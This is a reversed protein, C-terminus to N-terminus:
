SLYFTLSILAFIIILNYRSQDDPVKKYKDYGVIAIIGAIYSAILGQKVTPSLFIITLFIFQLFVQSLFAKKSIDYATKKNITKQSAYLSYADSLPDTILLSIIAGMVGIKHVKTTYLGTILSLMTIVGNTIGFTEGPRATM